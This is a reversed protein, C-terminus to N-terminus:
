RSATFPQFLPLRTPLQQILRGPDAISLSEREDSRGSGQARAVASMVFIMAVATLLELQPKRQILLVRTSFGSLVNDM